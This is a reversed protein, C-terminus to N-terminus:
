SQRRPRPCLTGRRGAPGCGHQARFTGRIRGAAPGPSPTVPARPHSAHGLLRADRGALGLYQGQDPLAEVVGLDTRLQEDRHARDLGMHRRQEALEAGRVTPGEGVERRVDGAGLPGTLREGPERRRQVREDAPGHLAGCQTGRDARVPLDGRDPRAPHALGPQRQGDRRVQGAREDVAHPEDVENRDGVRRHDTGRHRRRDAEALPLSVADVLGHERRQGVPPGQQDQVVTFV